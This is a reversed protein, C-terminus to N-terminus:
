IHLKNKKFEDGSAVYILFIVRDDASFFFIFIASKLICIVQSGPSRKLRNKKKKLQTKESLFESICGNKAFKEGFGVYIMQFTAVRKKKESFFIQLFFFFFKGVSGALSLARIGSTLYWIGSYLIGCYYWFIICDGCL